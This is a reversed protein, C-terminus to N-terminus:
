EQYVGAARLREKLREVQEKDEPSLETPTALTNGSSNTSSGNRVPGVTTQAGAEVPTKPMTLSIAFQITDGNAGDKAQVYIKKDLFAVFNGTTNFAKIITNKVSERAQDGKKPM